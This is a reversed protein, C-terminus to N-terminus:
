SVYVNYIRYIYSVYVNCVRYMFTINLSESLLMMIAFTTDQKQECSM